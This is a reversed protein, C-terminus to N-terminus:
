RGRQGTFVQGEGVIVRVVVAIGLGGLGFDVPVHVAGVVARVVTLRGNLGGRRLGSLLPLDLDGRM